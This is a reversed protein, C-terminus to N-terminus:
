SNEKGYDQGGSGNGCRGSPKGPHDPPTDENPVRKFELESSEGRPIEDEPNM